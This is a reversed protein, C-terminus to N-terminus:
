IATKNAAAPEGSAERMGYKNGLQRRHPRTINVSRPPRLARHQSNERDNGTNKQHQSDTRQHGAAIHDPAQVLIKGVVGPKGIVFRGDHGTDMGAVTLKNALERALPAEVHRNGGNRRANDGREERGLVLIEIGMAADIRHADHAGDVVVDDIHQAVTTENAGGGDGLLDGLIEQEGGVDGEVALEALRQDRDAEFLRERLILNEFEIQVLNIEADAGVTHGGGGEIIEVLRQVFQGDRFGGIERGKGLAGVVVMGVAEMVAGNRPAVPHDRAHLLLAVDRPALGGFGAGRGEVHRQARAAHLDAIGAIEDFLHATLQQM